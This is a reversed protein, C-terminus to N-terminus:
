PHVLPFLNFLSVQLLFPLLCDPNSQREGFNLFAERSPDNISHDRCRYSSSNSRSPRTLRPTSASTAPLALFAPASAPGPASHRPLTPRHSSMSLGMPSAM